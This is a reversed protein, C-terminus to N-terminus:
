ELAMVQTPSGHLQAYCRRSGHSFALRYTSVVPGILDSKPSMGIGLDYLGWEAYASAVGQSLSNAAVTPAKLILVPTHRSREVM